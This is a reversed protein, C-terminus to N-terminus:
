HAFGFVPTIPGRLGRGLGPFYAQYMILHFKTEYCALSRQRGCGGWDLAQKAGFM